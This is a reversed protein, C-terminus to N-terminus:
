PRTTANSWLAFVAEAAAIHRAAAEPLFLEAIPSPKIETPVMRSDWVTFSWPPGDQLPAAFVARTANASLEYHAISNRARVLRDVGRIVGDTNADLPGIGGFRSRMLLTWKWAVKSVGAPQQFLKKTNIFANLDASDIVDEGIENAGAEVALAAYLLAHVGALSREERLDGPLYV